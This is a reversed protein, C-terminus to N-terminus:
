DLAPSINRTLYSIVKLERLKIDNFKTYGSRIAAPHAPVLTSFARSCFISWIKLRYIFFRRFILLNKRILSLTILPVVMLFFLKMPICCWIVSYFQNSIRVYISPTGDYMWMFCGAKSCSFANMSSLELLLRTSLSRANYASSNFYVCRAVAATAIRM